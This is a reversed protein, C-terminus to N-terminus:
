ELELDNIFKALKLSNEARYEVRSKEKEEENEEVKAERKFYGTTDKESLGSRSPYVECKRRIM